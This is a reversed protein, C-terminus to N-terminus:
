LPHCARDDDSEVQSVIDDFIQNNQIQGIAVGLRLSLGLDSSTVNDVKKVKKALSSAHAYKFKRLKAENKQIKISVDFLVLRNLDVSSSLDEM